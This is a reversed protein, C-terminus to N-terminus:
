RRFGGWSGFSFSQGNSVSDISVTQTQGGVVLTVVDGISLAPSSFVVSGFSKASTHEFLATGDGDLIAIRTGASATQSLTKIFSCQASDGDFSEAMRSAGIALVTGGNVLLSGGNETGSDLAGNAGNAPGDVVVSGGQIILDGNSDLGDGNANVYVTGGSIILSPRQGDDSVAEASFPFLPSQAGGSANIGDDTATVSVAGGSILIESGEMGEYARSVTVSGGSLTLREDAHIGDDGSSLLLTGGQVTVSGNAHVCDDTASVAVSGGLIVLDGGSKLGKAGSDSEASGNQNGDFRNPLGGQDRRGAFDSREGGQRGSDRAKTRPAEADSVPLTTEGSVGPFAGSAAFDPPVGEGPFGEAGFNPMNPQITEGSIGLFAGSADFESPAAEGLNGPFAGLPDLNPPAGEGPNGPFAGAGFDPMNPQITEGSIGPFMGSPDFDPPVGEGPNGLFAGANIDPPTSGEADSATTDASAPLSEPEGAFITIRGDAVSLNGEADIGDGLSRIELAGGRIDVNGGDSKVGDNGSQIHIDGDLITVSDKGKLGNNAATIELEGGLVTLHDTTAVANNIYGGVTLKGGGAISLSDRAYLAAGTQAEAEAETTERADASAIVSKSGEPLYILAQDANSVRLAADTQPEATTERADGSVIVSESGEPLYILAHDANSVRLAAGSSNAIKVGDLILAVSGECNVELQGDSLSGSVRYIGPATISVTGNQSRADADSLAIRKASGSNLAAEASASLAQAAELANAAASTELPKGYRSACFALAIMAATLAFVLLGKATKTM